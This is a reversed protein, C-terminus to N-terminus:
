NFIVGILSVDLVHGNGGGRIKRASHYRYLEMLGVYRWVEKGDIDRSYLIWIEDGKVWWAPKVAVDVFLTRSEM